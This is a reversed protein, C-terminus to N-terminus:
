YKSEAFPTCEKFKVNFKNTNSKSSFVAVYKGSDIEGYDCTIYPEYYDYVQVVKGEMNHIMMYVHLETIYSIAKKYSGDSNQQNMFSNSYFYVYYWYNGNVDPKLTRIVMWMFSGWKDLNETTWDKQTHFKIEEKVEKTKEYQYYIEEKSKQAFLTLSCLFLVIILLYRM